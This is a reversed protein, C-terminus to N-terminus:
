QELRWHLVTWLLSALWGNSSQISYTYFNSICNCLKLSCNPMCLMKTNFAKIANSNPSFPRCFNFHTNFNFLVIFCRSNCSGMQMTVTRFALNKHFCCNALIINKSLKITSLNLEGNHDRFCSFYCYWLCILVRHVFKSCITTIQIPLRKSYSPHQRTNLNASYSLLSLCFIGNSNSTFNFGLQKDVSIGQSNFLNNIALNAKM